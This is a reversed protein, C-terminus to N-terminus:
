PSAAEERACQVPLRVTFRAGQGEASELSIRGGHAEVIQRVIFLGLGLGGFHHDSVAREFRQFLRGQAEEPIGIGHDQIVLVGEDAESSVRIEIPKGQGYKVANSLLNQVLQELRARDWFGAVPREAKLEVPSGSNAIEVAYSSLVDRVVDVLDTDERNLDLRGSVAMSVDLLRRILENLRHCQREVLELKDVLWAPLSPEERQGKKRM